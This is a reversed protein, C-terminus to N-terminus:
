SNADKNVNIWKYADIIGCYYAYEVPNRIMPPMMELDDRKKIWESFDDNFKQADISLKSM